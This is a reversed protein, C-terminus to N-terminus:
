TSTRRSGCMPRPRNGGSTSCFCGGSRIDPALTALEAAYRRINNANDAGLAVARMM